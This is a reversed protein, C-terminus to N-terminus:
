PRGTAHRTDPGISGSPMLGPFEWTGLLAEVSVRPRVGAGTGWWNFVFNCQKSPKLLSHKDFHHGLM